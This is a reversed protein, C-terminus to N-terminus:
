ILLLVSVPIYFPKVVTPGRNFSEGLLSVMYIVEMCLVSELGGFM